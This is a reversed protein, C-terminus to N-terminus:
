CNDKAFYSYDLVAHNKYGLAEYFAHTGSKRRHNATILEIVIAGYEAAYKEAETMLQKGIGKGRHTHDVVLTDIHCCSGPIRLQEYCAFAIVGILLKGEEAVIIQHNKSDFARIRDQMNELTMGYNPGMQEVLTVLQAADSQIANRFIMFIIRSLTYFFKM